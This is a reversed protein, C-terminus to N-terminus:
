IDEEMLFSLFFNRLDFNLILANPFEHMNELSDGKIIYREFVGVFM